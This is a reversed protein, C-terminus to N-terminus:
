HVSCEGGWISAAKEKTTTVCWIYRSKLGAVHTGATPFSATLRSAFCFHSNKGGGFVVHGASWYRGKQFADRRTVRRSSWSDGAVM